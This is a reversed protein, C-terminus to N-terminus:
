RETESNSPRKYNALVVRSNCSVELKGRIYVDNELSPSLYAKIKRLKHFDEFMKLQTDLVSKAMFKPGKM